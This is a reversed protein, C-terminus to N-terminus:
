KIIQRDISSLLELVTKEKDTLTINMQEIVRQALESSACLSMGHILNALRNYEDKDEPFLLSMDLYNEEARELTVKFVHDCPAPSKFDTGFSECKAFFLQWDVIKQTEM